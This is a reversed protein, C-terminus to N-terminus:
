KLGRNKWVIWSATLAVVILVLDSYIYTTIKFFAKDIVSAAVLIMIFCSMAKLIGETELYIAGILVLFM